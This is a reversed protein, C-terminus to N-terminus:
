DTNGANDYHLMTPTVCPGRWNKKIEESRQGNQSSNYRQVGPDRSRSVCNQRRRDRGCRPWSLRQSEQMNAPQSLTESHRHSQSPRSGNPREKMCYAGPLCGQHGPKPNDQEGDRLKRHGTKDCLLEAGQGPAAMCVVETMTTMPMGSMWSSGQLTVGPDAEVMECLVPVGERGWRGWGAGPVRVSGTEYRESEWRTL